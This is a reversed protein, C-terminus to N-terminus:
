QHRLAVMADVRIVRRAPLYCAFLAIAALVLTVGMFTLPDTSNVLAVYRAAVRTLAAALGIGIIAGAIVLALGQGLVLSRVDAPEAGPAMRIGIERTRQSAGYSVVCYVGIVALVLGLLGMAGAQIVGLRFMLFGMGGALSERMTQVDAVPIDPDLTQIEQLVRVRLTDPPVSSRVQLSRLSSYYQAQPVCM